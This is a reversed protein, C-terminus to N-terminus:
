PTGSCRGPTLRVLLLTATLGAAGLRAKELESDLWVQSPCAFACCAEGVFLRCQWQCWMKKYNSSARPYLQPM